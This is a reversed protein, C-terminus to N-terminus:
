ALDLCISHEAKQRCRAFNAQNTVEFDGYSSTYDFGDNAPMSLYQTSEILDESTGKIKIPVEKNGDLMNGIVFGESAIALENLFFEGPISNLILSSEDFKFELNKSSQSLESITLYVDPAERIILELKKGLAMLVTLDPGDISFEVASDVPPGSSFKDIVIKLDPNEGTIRKALAPLAAMMEKYSSAFYVGQAINNSGLGSDGGIVNYLIRPLRRGVFWIDDQGLGTQAISERIELVRQETTRTNSNQPLEIFVKFMNRDLEPFFDAKLFPFMLFGLLPLAMSIMIARKPFAYSWILLERYRKLLKKNSYGTGSYIDKKFLKIKEMYNLLVPVVFLALFLSSTISLIVTKAMGGVFESSPGSGAAIPFFALATTATAAALPVWLHHFSEFSAEQM